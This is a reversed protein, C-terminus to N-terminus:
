RARQDERGALVALRRPPLRRHRRSDEAPLYASPRAGVECRSASSWQGAGMGLGTTRTREATHFSRGRGGLTAGASRLGHRGFVPVVGRRLRVVPPSRTRREREPGTGDGTSRGSRPRQSATTRFSSARRLAWCPPTGSTSIGMGTQASARSPATRCGGFLTKSSGGLPRRLSSRIPRVQCRLRWIARTSSPSSGSSRAPLSRRSTWSL